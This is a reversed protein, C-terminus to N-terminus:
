TDYLLRLDARNHSVLEGCHGCFHKFILMM